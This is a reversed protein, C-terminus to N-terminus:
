TDPTKANKHHGENLLKLYQQKKTEFTGVLRGIKKLRLCKIWGKRKLMLMMIKLLNIKVLIDLKDIAKNMLDMLLKVNKNYRTIKNLMEAM